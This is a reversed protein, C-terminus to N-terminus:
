RHQLDLGNYISLGTLYGVMLGNKYFLDKIIESESPKLDGFISQKRVYYKGEAIRVIEGSAVKRHLAKIITKRSISETIFDQHTFIYGDSLKNLRSDKYTM